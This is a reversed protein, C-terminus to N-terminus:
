SIWSLAYCFCLTLLTKRELQGRLVWGLDLPARPGHLLLLHITSEFSFPGHILLDNVGQKNTCVRTPGLFTSPGLRCFVILVSQRQSRTQLDGAPETNVKYEQGQSAQHIRACARPVKSSVNSHICDCFFDFLFFQVKQESSFSKIM